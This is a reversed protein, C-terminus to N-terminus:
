RKKLPLIFGAEWTWQLSYFHHTALGQHDSGLKTNTYDAYAGQMDSQVFFNKLLQLRVGVSTAAVWGHYHFYGRDTDNMITSITYSIMPGVGFKGIASLQFYKNELIVKRKVLSVILYNNGNTHQLHVFNPTVLTDKDYFVGNIEGKM